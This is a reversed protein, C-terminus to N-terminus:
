LPHFPRLNSHHIYQCPLSLRYAMEPATLWSFRQLFFLGKSRKRHASEVGFALTVSSSTDFYLKYLYVINTDSTFIKQSVFKRHHLKPVSPFFLESRKRRRLSTTSPLRDRRHLKKTSSMIITRERRWYTMCHISIWPSLCNELLYLVDTNNTSQIVTILICFDPM